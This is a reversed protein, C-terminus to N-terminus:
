VGWRWNNILRWGVLAMCKGPVFKAGYVWLGWTSRSVLSSNISDYVGFEM